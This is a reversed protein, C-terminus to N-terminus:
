DLEVLSEAIRLDGVELLMKDLLQQFVPRNLPRPNPDIGGGNLRVAPVRIIHPHHLWATVVRLGV